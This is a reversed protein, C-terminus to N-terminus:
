ELEYVRMHLPPSYLHMTVLHNGAPERNAVEHIDLSESMCVEGVSYTGTGISRVLNRGERVRGLDQCRIETATGQMIRFICRSGFHDHIPSAQGSMWCLLLLEYAETVRLPNRQYASESFSCYRSVDSMDLSAERLYSKMALMADRDLPQRVPGSTCALSDLYDVLAELRQSM